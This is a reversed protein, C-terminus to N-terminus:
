ATTGLGAKRQLAACCLEKQQARWLSFVIEKEKNLCAYLM